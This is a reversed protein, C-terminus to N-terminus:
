NIDRGGFFHANLKTVDDSKVFRIRLFDEILFEEPALGAQLIMGSSAGPQTGDMTYNVDGNGQAQLMVGSANKPIDFASATQVAPLTCDAQQYSLFM